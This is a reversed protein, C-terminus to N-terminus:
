DAISAEAEGVPAGILPLFIVDRRFTEFLYLALVMGSDFGSISVTPCLDLQILQVLQNSLMLLDTSTHFIQKVETM